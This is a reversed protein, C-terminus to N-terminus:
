EPAHHEVAMLYGRARETRPYRDVVAWFPASHDGHVLHALEHVLLYDLVWPPLSAARASVRIVGSEVLCSAWTRIQRDSWEVLSPEPLDYHAALERARGDLDIQDSRHKRLLRDTLETGYRDIDDDSMSSPVLLEIVGDVLRAEVTKRRRKSRIVEIPPDLPEPPAVPGFPLQEETLSM